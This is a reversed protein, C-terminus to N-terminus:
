GNWGRKRLFNEFSRLAGWYNKDKWRWKRTTPWYELRHGRLATSWHYLTHQEMQKSLFHEEFEKLREAKKHRTAEKLCGFIPGREATM